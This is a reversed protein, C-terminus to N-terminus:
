RWTRSARCPLLAVDPVDGQSCGGPGSRPGGPPRNGRRVLRPCDPPVADMWVGLPHSASGDLGKDATTRKSPRSGINLMGLQEVPTTTVFYEPLDPDDILQRYRGFAAESILDMLKDREVQVQATARAVRHLSSGELVAAVTLELNERALEPHLYKDSIVEGQETVKIAGDLVGYPQSLISEYTPCAEAAM